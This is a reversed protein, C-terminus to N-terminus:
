STRTTRSSSPGWSSDASLTTNGCGDGVRMHSVAGRELLLDARWNLVINEALRSDHSVSDIADLLTKGKVIGGKTEKTWGKFWPM